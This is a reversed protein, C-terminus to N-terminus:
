EGKLGKRKEVNTPLFYFTTESHCPVGLRLAKALLKGSQKGYFLIDAERINKVLIFNNELLLKEVEKRNITFNGTLMYKKM